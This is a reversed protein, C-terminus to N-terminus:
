VGCLAHDILATTKDHKTAPVGEDRQFSDTNITVMVSRRGDPTVGNRTQFGRNDGGPAWSGGCSTPVWMLGLGYRAGPWNQRFEKSTAVTRQMARLQAPRLLEGSVLARLFRNTDRTTSIMEGAAGGWTPNQRTADIADGYDPDEATADPGPFREYGVAHPGPIGARNGPVTTHRLGLPRITAINM